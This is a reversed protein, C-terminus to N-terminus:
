VESHIQTVNLEKAGLYDASLKISLLGAARKAERSRRQESFM